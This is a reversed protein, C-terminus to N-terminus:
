PEVMKLLDPSTHLAARADARFGEIDAATMGPLPLGAQERAAAYAILRRAMRRALAGGKLDASQEPTYVRGGPPLQGYDANLASM